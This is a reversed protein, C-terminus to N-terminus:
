AAGTKSRLVWAVAILAWGDLILSISVYIGVLFLSTGPWGMLFMLALLLSIIGNFIMWGRGKYPHLEGAMAFSGYADFLLYISLLLGVGAIGSLPYFLMLGGITILLLPKLWGMFRSRDSKWTHFGWFVGGIILMWSIYVATVISMLGPVAMGMSGLVVLLIGTILTHRGYKGRTSGSNVTSEM